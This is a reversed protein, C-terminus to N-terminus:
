PCNNAKRWGAAEAEAESCFYKEGNDLDIKTNAYSQCGPSHYIKEGQSNINGKIACSSDAPLDSNTGSAPTQREQEKECVGDAWLGLKNERAYNQAEKFEQQYIYPVQYTYEYAYGQKIIELNYFLGDERFVYRLLRGYKDREDQTEDKELYVKQGSLLEKAKASAEKGFCEVPKRPDVTEPTNIGILRLREIENNINVDITDGDVVKVVLYYQRKDNQPAVLPLSSSDLKRNMEEVNDESVDNEINLISYEIDNENEVDEQEGNVTQQEGNYIREGLVDQKNEVNHNVFFLIGVFFVAGFVLSLYSKSSM